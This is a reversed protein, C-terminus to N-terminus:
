NEITFSNYKKNQLQNMARQVEAAQEPETM